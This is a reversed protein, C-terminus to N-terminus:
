VDEEAPTLWTNSVVNVNGNPFKVESQEPGAVLVVCRHTGFLYCKQQVHFVPLREAKPVYRKM